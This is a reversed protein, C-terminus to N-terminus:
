LVRRRLAWLGLGLLMAGTALAPLGRSGRIRRHIQVRAPAAVPEFAPRLKPFDRARLVRWHDYLDRGNEPAHGEWALSKWGADVSKHSAMNEVVAMVATMRRTLFFSRKAVVTWSSDVKGRAKRLAVELKHIVRGSAGVFVLKGAPHLVRLIEEFMAQYFVQPDGRIRFQRNWPPAVMVKKVVKDPFPIGGPKTADVRYLQVDRHLWKFNARCCDLQDSDVQCSHSVATVRPVPCAQEHQRMSCSLQIQLLATLQVDSVFHLSCKQWYEARAEPGQTEENLGAADCGVFSANPWWVAAEALLTGSLNCTLPM